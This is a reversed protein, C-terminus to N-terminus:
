VRVADVLEVLEKGREFRRADERVVLQQIAAVPLGPTWYIYGTMDGDDRMNILTTPRNQIHWEWKSMPVFGVAEQSARRLADMESLDDYEAFSVTRM